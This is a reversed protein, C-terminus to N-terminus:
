EENNEVLLYTFKKKDYIGSVERMAYFLGSIGEELIRGGLQKKGKRWGLNLTHEATLVPYLATHFHSALRILFQWDNERYQIIPTMIEKNKGNEWAVNGGWGQTVQEAIDAYTLSVKQFSRNHIDGELAKTKTYAIM